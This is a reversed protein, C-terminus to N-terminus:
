RIFSIVFLWIFGLVTIMKLGTGLLFGMFAGFAAKFVGENIGEKNIWEGVLAGLFPGLIIGWPGTFFGIILGITAGTTAYKSGGFKKTMTVPFFNDIISVVVAIVGTIILWLISINNFRSFHAALLGAWALPAGPLVPVFTGLFGVLLLVGAVICLIVSIGTSM